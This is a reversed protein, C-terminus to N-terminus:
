SGPAGGSVDLPGQQSPLKVVNLWDRAEASSSLCSNRTPSTAWLTILLPAM